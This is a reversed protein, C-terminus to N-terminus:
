LALGNKLVRITEEHARQNVKAEAFFHSGHFTGPFSHLETQVGEQMLKLAYLIGEDRLPDFEMTSIYTRPLGRLDKARAPSAYIPVDDDGPSFADGLYYRWSLEALKKDWIPTDSFQRMSLTNLRDDLEPIGLYQFCIPPGNRDRSLLAIAACLGGGASLGYIGVRSRDILLHDASESVWSLTAYCDNLGAPYPYEPALRYGVSVVVIGLERCLALCTQQESDLSGIVFGGGHVHILGGGIKTERHKPTYIRIPVEHGDLESKVTENTVLVDSFDLEIAKAFNELTSRCTIPDSLDLELTRDPLERMMRDIEPDFCYGM